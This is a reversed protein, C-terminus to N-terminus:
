KGWALWAKPMGDTTLQFTSGNAMDRLYVEDSGGMDSLFALWMGDPSWAPSFDNGAYNTVRVLGRGNVGITYVDLSGPLNSHFAIRTGDPSWAPWREDEPSNNLNLAEGSGDVNMVFINWNGTRNSMFALRLGDPSWSPRDLLGRSFTVQKIMGSDVHLTFIELARHDRQEPVFTHRNSVFALTKGDPSWAPATEYLYEEIENQNEFTPNVSIKRQESGDSNMLYLHSIFVSRSRNLQMRAFALLKGDPSVAVSTYSADKDQNSTLARKGSGDMSIAYIDYSRWNLQADAFQPNEQCYYVRSTQTGNETTVDSATQEAEAPILVTPEAQNTERTPTSATPACGALMILALMTASIHFAAKQLHHKPM